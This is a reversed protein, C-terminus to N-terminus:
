VEKRNKTVFIISGMEDQERAEQREQEFRMEKTWDKKHTMLKDVEQRKIKLQEIAVELNKEALEVQGQQEKVKKEEIILKEQVVNLYQKMQQIEPSTTETDMKYRMQALKDAYHKKVKDRAEEAQKLKDKERELAERKEAVVKEQDAVRKEKVAIIQQLPYQVKAPM